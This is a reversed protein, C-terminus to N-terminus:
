KEKSTRLLVDFFVMQLRLVYKGGYSPLIENHFLCLVYLAATATINTIKCPSRLATQGM